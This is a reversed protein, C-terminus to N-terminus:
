SYLSIGGPVIKGDKLNYAWAQLVNDPLRLSINIGKYSKIVTDVILEQGNIESVSYIIKNFLNESKPWDITYGSMGIGMSRKGAEDAAFKWMKWWQDSFIEPDAPYTPWGPSDKHIYNMQM